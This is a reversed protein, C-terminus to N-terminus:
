HNVNPYSIDVIEWMLGHHQCRGEHGIQEIIGEPVNVEKFEM